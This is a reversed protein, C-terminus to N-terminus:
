RYLKCVGTDKIECIKRTTNKGEPTAQQSTKLKLGVKENKISQLCEM